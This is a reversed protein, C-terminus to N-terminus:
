VKQETLIHTLGYSLDRYSIEEIMLCTTTNEEEYKMEGSAERLKDYADMTINSKRLIKYMRKHQGKPHTEVDEKDVENHYVGSLSEYKVLLLKKETDGKVLEEGNEHDEIRDEVNFGLMIGRGTVGNLQTFIRKHENVVNVM